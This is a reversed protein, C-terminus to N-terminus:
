TLALGLTQHKHRSDTTRVGPCAPFGDDPPSRHCVHHSLTQFEHGQQPQQGGRQGQRPGHQACLDPNGFSPHCVTGQQWLDLRERVPREVVEHCLVGSVVDGFVGCSVRSVASNARLLGGAHRRQGGSARIFLTEPEAPRLRVLRLQGRRLGLAPPAQMARKALLRWAQAAQHHSFLGKHMGPHRALLPREPAPRCRVIGSGRRVLQAQDVRM